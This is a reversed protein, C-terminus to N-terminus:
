QKEMNLHNDFLIPSGIVYGDCSIDNIILSKLRHSVGGIVYGDCLFESTTLYGDFLIKLGFHYTVPMNEQNRNLMEISCKDSKKCIKSMLVGIRNQFGSPIFLNYSLAFWFDILGRLPSITLRDM